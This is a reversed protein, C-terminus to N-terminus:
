TPAKGLHRASRKTAANTSDLGTMVAVNRWQFCIGLGAYPRAAVAVPAQHQAFVTREM